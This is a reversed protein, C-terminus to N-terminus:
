LRRACINDIRHKIEKLFFAEDEEHKDLHWLMKVCAIERYLPTM